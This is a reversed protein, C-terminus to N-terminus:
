GFLESKVAPILDPRAGILNLSAIGHKVCAATVQENTITKAALAPTILQMLEPLTTEVTVDQGVIPFADIQQDTYMALLLQQRTWEGDDTVYKTEVIPGAPGAPGAPKVTNPGAPKVTNIDTVNATETTTPASVVARLEAKVTDVLENDVGKKLKWTNGRKLKLKSAGHIRADWPLGDEDLEIGTTVVTDDDEIDDIAIEDDDVIETIIRGTWGDALETPLQYFQKQTLPTNSYVNLEGADIICKGLFEPEDTNSDMTDAVNNLFIAASRLESVEINLELNM